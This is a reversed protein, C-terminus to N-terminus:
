TGPEMGLWGVEGPSFCRGKGNELVCLRGELDISELIGRVPEGDLQWRQARGWGHLRQHYHRLLAEPTNIEALRADFHLLVDRLLEARVEEAEKATTDSSLLATANPFSPTGRLNIGIGIVASSWVNGRWNNEILIGGAKKGKWMIDNPWKIELEKGRTHPLTHEIAEVVALSAALNLVFPHPSPLGKSLILTCALDQNSAQEWSRQQQGRGQTQQEATIAMHDLLPPSASRLARLARSNTSDTSTWGLLTWRGSQEQFHPQCGMSQALLQVATHLDEV